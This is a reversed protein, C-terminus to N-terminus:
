QRFALRAWDADLTRFMAAPDAGLVLAQTYNMIPITRPVLM